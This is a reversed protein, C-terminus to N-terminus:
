LRQCQPDPRQAGGLVPEDAPRDRCGADAGPDARGPAQPRHTGGDHRFLHLRRHRIGRDRHSDAAAAAVAHPPSHEIDPHTADILSRYLKHGETARIIKDMMEVAERPYQGSASEASLM